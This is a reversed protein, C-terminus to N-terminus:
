DEIVSSLGGIGVAVPTANSRKNNVRL